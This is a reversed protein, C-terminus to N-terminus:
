FSFFLSLRNFRWEVKHLRAIFISFNKKKNEEEREEREEDRRKRWSETEKKRKWKYFPFFSSSPFFSFFVPRLLLPLLRLLFFINIQNLSLTCKYLSINYLSVFTFSYKIIYIPHNKTCQVEITIYSSSAQSSEM